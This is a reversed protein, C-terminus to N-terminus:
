SDKSSNAEKQRKEFKLRYSRRFLFMGISVAFFAAFLYWEDSGESLLEVIRYGSFFAVFLYLFETFRLLKTM